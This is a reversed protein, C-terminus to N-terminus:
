LARALIALDKGSRVLSLYIDEVMRLRLQIEKGTLRRSPKKSLINEFGKQSGDALGAEKSWKTKFIEQPTKSAASDRTNLYHWIASLHDPSSAPNFLKASFPETTLEVTEKGDRLEALTLFSLGTSLSGSITFLINPITPRPPPAPIFKANGVLAIISSSIFNVANTMSVRKMKRSEIRDMAEELVLHAFLGSIQFQVMWLKRLLRSGAVVVAVPAEPLLKNDARLAFLKAFDDKLMFRDAIELLENQSAIDGTKVGMEASHAQATEALWPNALCAFLLSIAAAVIARRCM